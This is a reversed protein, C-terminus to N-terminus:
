FIKDDVCGIGTQRVFGLISNYHPMFPPMPSYLAICISMSEDICVREEIYIPLLITDIDYIFLLIM